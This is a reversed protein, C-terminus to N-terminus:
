KKSQEKRKKNKNNLLTAFNEKNLQKTRSIALAESKVNKTVVTGTATMAKDEVTVPAILCTNSGIFVDKGITTRDKNFGDYNCTITGAGINTREGIDSDGIYTLHNVKAQKHIHSNKIEVFNGIHAQEGIIAGPRIRAFPGIIAHKKIVCNEFHSNAKIHVEDEVSVGVGFFVNPEIIVDKGIITDHSFYTTNKDLLTAGNNMAELRKRSQFIEEAQSLEVRSNVGLIDSELAEVWSCRLGKNNAIKIIDPLYYENQANNNEVMNLLEFLHQADVCMIGGNCLTIQQQQKTADKFEINELLKNEDTILRGYAKTGTHQFGVSVVHNGKRRKELMQEYISAPILPNDGFCIFIDGVNEKISDQASLTAHATGLREKQYAIKYESLIDHLITQEEGIVVTINNKECGAQELSSIVHSIMPKGGIKHAVKPISSKMRTGHGAGLIIASIDM